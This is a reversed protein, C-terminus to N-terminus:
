ELSREANRAEIEKLKRWLTNRGVGLVRAARSRNGKCQRLVTLIHDAEIDALPRTDHTIMAPKAGLARRVMIDAEGPQLPVFVYGYVGLQMAAVADRIQQANALVLVPSTRAIVTASSIDDSVVVDAQSTVIEHGASALMSHLTMRNAAELIRLEVRAMGYFYRVKRSFDVTIATGNIRICLRRDSRYVNM